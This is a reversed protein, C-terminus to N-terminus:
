TVCVQPFVQPLSVISLLLSSCTALMCHVHLSLTVMCTFTTGYVVLKEHLFNIMSKMFLVADCFFSKTAMQSFKVIHLYMYTYM